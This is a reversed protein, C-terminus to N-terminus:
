VKWGGKRQKGKRRGGKEKSKRKEEGGRGEGKREKRTRSLLGLAGDMSSM